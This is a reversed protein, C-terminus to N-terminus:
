LDLSLSYLQLYENAWLCLISKIVDLRWRLYLSDILVNLSIVHLRGKGLIWVAVIGSLPLGPGLYTMILGKIIWVM